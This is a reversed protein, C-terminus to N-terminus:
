SICLESPLRQVGIYENYIICEHSDHMGIM